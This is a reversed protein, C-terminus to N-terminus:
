TGQANTQGEWKTGDLYGCAIRDARDDWGKGHAEREGHTPYSPRDHRAAGAGCANWGNWYAESKHKDRPPNPLM